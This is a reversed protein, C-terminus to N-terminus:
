VMAFGDGVCVFTDSELRSQCMDSDILRISRKDSGPGRQKIGDTTQNDVAIAHCKIMPSHEHVTGVFLRVLGHEHNCGLLGDAVCLALDNGSM